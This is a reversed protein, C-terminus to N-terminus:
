ALRVNDVKSGSIDITILSPTGSGVGANTAVGAGNSIHTHGVIATSIATAISNVISTKFNNLAINLDAYSVANDASGNIDWASASSKFTNGKFDTLEFAETDPNVKLVFTGNIFIMEGTEQDFTKSWGGPLIEKDGQGLLSSIIDSDRVDLPAPKIVGSNIDDVPHYIIVQSGLPPYAIGGTVPDKSPYYSSPIKIGSAIFGTVLLINCTGDDNNSEVEGYTVAIVRNYLSSRTNAQIRPKPPSQIMIRKM